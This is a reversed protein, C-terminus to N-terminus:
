LKQKIISLFLYRYFIDTFIDISSVFFNHNSKDDSLSETAFQILYVRLERLLSLARLM